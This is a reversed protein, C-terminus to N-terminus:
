VQAVVFADTRGYEKGWVLRRWLYQFVKRRGIARLGLGHTGSVIPRIGAEDCLCELLPVPYPRVHTTDLWFIETMTRLDTVNPTVIVLRGGTRLARRALDLLKVAQAPTLHEIVHSLFIGGLQNPQGALYELADAQVIEVGRARCAEVSETAADVGVAKHGAANLEAVFMGRGCGIDAVPGPVGTLYKIFRQQLALADAERGGFSYLSKSM